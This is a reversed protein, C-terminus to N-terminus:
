HLLYRFLLELEDRYLFALYPLMFLVGLMLYETIVKAHTQREVLVKQRDAWEKRERVLQTLVSM